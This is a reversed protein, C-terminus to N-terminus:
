TSRPWSGEGEGHEEEPHHEEIERTGAIGAIVGSALM